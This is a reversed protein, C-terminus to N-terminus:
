AGGRGGRRPRGKRGAQLIREIQQLHNLDHGAYLGVVDRITEKGREEHIGFQRWEGPGLARLLELNAERLARFLDLSRRPDRRAYKGARAWEDQDFAQIRTGNSALMMRIRYGGVWEVEALHALIEGASWKKPAPRRLLRARPVGRILREIKEATARQVRLPDRGRVYGQIRRKYQEATEPM